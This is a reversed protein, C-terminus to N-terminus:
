EIRWEKVIKSAADQEAAKKSAGVGVSEVKGNIYLAYRFTPKNDPGSRGVSKYELSYRHKQCHEQLLTKADKKLTDAASNLSDGLTRLVFERASTEGGDLFIACLVAEFLNAETKHSLESNPGSGNVMQLYQVLDLKDVIRSLSEASVLRARMASLEGESSSQFREFLQESTIYGLIADGFFEMRENDAVNEQNAYSSHTFAQELLAKNNFTYQLKREIEQIKTANMKCKM